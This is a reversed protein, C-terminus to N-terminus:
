HLRLPQLFLAVLPYQSEPQLSPPTMEVGVGVWKPPAKLVEDWSKKRGPHALLPRPCIPSSLVLLSSHRAIPPDEHVQEPTGSYSSNQSPLVASWLCTTELDYTGSHTAVRIQSVLVTLRSTCLLVCQDDQFCFHLLWQFLFPSYLDRGM